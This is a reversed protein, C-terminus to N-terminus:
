RHVLYELITWKITDNLLPNDLIQPFNQKRASVFKQHLDDHTWTPHLDIFCQMCYTEILWKSACGGCLPIHCRACSLSNTELEKACVVCISTDALQKQVCRHSCFLFKHWFYFGGELLASSRYTAANEQRTRRVSVPLNMDAAHVFPCHLMHVTACKSCEFTARTCTVTSMQLRQARCVNCLHAEKPEKTVRRREVHQFCDFCPFSEYLTDHCAICIQKPFHFYKPSYITRKCHNCQLEKKTTTTTTSLM